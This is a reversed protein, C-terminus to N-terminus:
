RIRIQIRRGTTTHPFSLLLPPLHAPCSRTCLMAFRSRPTMTQLAKECSELHCTKEETLLLKCTYHACMRGCYSQFQQLRYIAEALIKQEGGDAVGFIASTDGSELTLYGGENTHARMGRDHLRSALAQLVTSQQEERPIREVVLTERYLDFLGPASMVTAKRAYSPLQCLVRVLEHGKDSLESPAGTFFCTAPNTISM